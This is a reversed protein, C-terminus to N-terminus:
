VGGEELQFPGPEERETKVSRSTLFIGPAKSAEKTNKFLGLCFFCSLFLLVPVELCEGHLVVAGFSM